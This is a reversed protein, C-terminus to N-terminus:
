NQMMPWDDWETLDVRQILKGAKMRCLIYRMSVPVAAQVDYHKLIVTRLQISDEIKMIFTLEETTLTVMEAGELLSFLKITPQDVSADGDLYLWPLSIELHNVQVLPFSAGLLALFSDFLLYHINAFCPMCIEAAAEM